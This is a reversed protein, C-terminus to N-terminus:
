GVETLGFEAVMPDGNLYNNITNRIHNALYINGAKGFHVNNINGHLEPHTKPGLDSMDIVLCGYKEGIKRIVDNTTEVNGKSAFVNCLVIFADPNKEKIQEIIMCYYGTETNAFYKYHDYKEVDESLTDTLGNNTGLWIVFSDFDAYNGSYEPAVLKWWDSASYGSRGGNVTINRTLMGLYKPFNQSISRGNFRKDYYCAGATLSDGICLTPGMGIAYDATTTKEQHVKQTADYVVSVTETDKQTNFNSVRMVVAGAPVVVTDGDFSGVIQNFANVFHGIGADQFRTDVKIIYGNITSVDYVLTDFYELAFVDGTQTAYHGEIIEVPEMTITTMDELDNSLKMIASDIGKLTIRSSPALDTRCTFRVYCAGEPVELDYESFIKGYFNDTVGDFGSIFGKARNYYALYMNEGMCTKVRYNVGSLVPIFDTASATSLEFLEGNNGVYYGSSWSPSPSGICEMLERIQERIATGLSTSIDGNAKVRGDIIEADLSTTGPVIQSLVNDLRVNFGEILFAIREDIFGNDIYMQLFDHLTNVLNDKMYLVGGRIIGEQTQKWQLDTEAIENLSDIIENIKEAVDRTLGISSRAEEKYLRNTNEPLIYHDIKNM